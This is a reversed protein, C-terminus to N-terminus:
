DRLRICLSALYYINSRVFYMGIIRDGFQERLKKELLKQHKQPAANVADANWLKLRRIGSAKRKDNFICSGARGTFDAAVLAKRFKATDGRM